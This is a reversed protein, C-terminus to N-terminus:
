SRVADEEAQNKYRQYSEYYGGQGEKVADFDNLITGILRVRDREFLDRANAAQERTTIGARFILIAGDAHRAFIRADAM